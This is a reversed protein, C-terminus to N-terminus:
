HKVALAIFSIVLLLWPMLRTLDFKEPHIKEYQIAHKIVTAQEVAALHRTEQVYDSPANVVFVRGESSIYEKVDPWPISHYPAAIRDENIDTVDLIECLNGDSEFIVVRDRTRVQRELDPTELMKKKNLLKM